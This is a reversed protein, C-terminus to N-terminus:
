FLPLIKKVEFCRQTSGDRRCCTTHEHRRQQAPQASNLGGRWSSSSSSSSRLSFHVHITRIGDQQKKVLGGHIKSEASPVGASTAEDAVSPFTVIAQHGSGNDKPDRPGTFRHDRTSPRNDVMSQRHHHDICSRRILLSLSLSLRPSSYKNSGRHRLETTVEERWSALQPKGSVVTSLSRSM